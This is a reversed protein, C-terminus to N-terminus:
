VIAFTSTSSSTGIFPDFSSSVSREPKMLEFGREINTGAFSALGAPNV